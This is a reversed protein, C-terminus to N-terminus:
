GLRSAHAMRAQGDNNGDNLRKREKKGEDKAKSGSRTFERPQFDTEGLIKAFSSSILLFFALTRANKRRKVALTQDHSGPGGRTRPTNCLRYKYLRDAYVLKNLRYDTNIPM